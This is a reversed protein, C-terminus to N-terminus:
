RSGCRMTQHPNRTGPANAPFPSRGIFAYTVTRYARSGDPCRQSGSVILVAPYTHFHGAACDPKCDNAYATGLAVARKGGWGFWTLGKFGFGADACALVVQRPETRPKGLCDPLGKAAQAAASGALLVFAALTGVLILRKASV